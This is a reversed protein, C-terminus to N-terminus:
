KKQYFLFYANDQVDEVFRVKRTANSEKKKSSPRMKTIDVKEVETDSIFYWSMGGNVQPHRVYAVYHGSNISQGGEHFVVGRLEYTPTETVPGWQMDARIQLTEELLIPTSIKTLENDFRKLQVVMVPPFPAILRRTQPPNVNPERAVYNLLLERVSIAKSQKPIQLVLPSEVGVNWSKPKNPWEIETKVRLAMTKSLLPESCEPLTDLMSRLDNCIAELTRGNGANVGKKIALEKLQQIDTKTNKCQRYFQPDSIYDNCDFDLFGINEQTAACKGVGSTLESVNGDEMSTHLLQLFEICDQQTGCVMPSECEQLLSEFQRMNKAVNTHGRASQLALILAYQWKHWSQWRSPDSPWTKQCRLLKEFVPDLAALCQFMANRYCTNGINTLGHFKRDKYQPIRVAASSASAAAASSTAAVATPAFASLASGTPGIQYLDILRQLLLQNKKTATSSAPKIQQLVQFRRQLFSQQQQQQTTTTSSM